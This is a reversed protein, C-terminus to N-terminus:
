KEAFLRANHEDAVVHYLVIEIHNLQQFATIIDYHNWTAWIIIQTTMCTWICYNCLFCHTDQFSKIGFKFVFNARCLYNQSVWESILQYAPLYKYHFIRFSVFCINVFFQVLLWKIDITNKHNTKPDIESKLVDSLFIDRMMSYRLEAGSKFYTNCSRRQRCRRPYFADFTKINVVCFAKIFSCM